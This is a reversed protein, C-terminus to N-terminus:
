SPARMNAGTVEVRDAMARIRWYIREGVHSMLADADLNTTVVTRKHENHRHNLVEFLKEEAWGTMREAGLDDLVLLHVSKLGDLLDAESVRETGETGYTARIETLLEPVTLFVASQGDGIALRTIWTALFTKGRGFEGDLLLWPRGDGEWWNRCASIISQDPYTTADLELYEPPIMAGGRLRAARRGVVLGCPCEVPVGFLADGAPVDRRLYGAGHCRPCSDDDDREPAPLAMLRALEEHGLLREIAQGFSEMAQRRRLSGFPGGATTTRDSM